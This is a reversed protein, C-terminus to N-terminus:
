CLPVSPLDYEIGLVKEPLNAPIINAIKTICNMTKIVLTNVLLPNPAITFKILIASNVEKNPSIKPATPEIFSIPLLLARGIKVDIILKTKAPNVQNKRYPQDNPPHFM